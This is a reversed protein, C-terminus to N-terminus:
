GINEAAFGAVGFQVEVLAAVETEGGGGMFVDLDIAFFELGGHV